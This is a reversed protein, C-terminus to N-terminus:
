SAGLEPRTSASRAARIFEGYDPRDASTEHRFAHVVRGQDVLMAGPMRFVDGRLRGIGHGTVLSVLGRWWVRPGWIQWWNGRTLGFARYLDCRPDSFRPLDGLGYGPFEAAAEAESGM